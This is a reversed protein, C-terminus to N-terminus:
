MSSTQFTSGVSAHPPRGTPSAHNEGVHVLYPVALFNRNGTTITPVPEDASKPVNNTNNSVVFPASVDRWKWAVGTANCADCGTGDCDECEASYEEQKTCADCTVLITRGPETTFPDAVSRLGMGRCEPCTDQKALTVAAIAHEGRKSATITGLPEEASKADNGGGGYTKAKMIIPTVVAHDRSTTLAGIPDEASHM